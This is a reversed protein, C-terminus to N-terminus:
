PKRFPVKGREELRAYWLPNHHRIFEAPVFGSLMSRLAPAEGPAFAAMYIHVPLAVAMIGACLFHISLAWQILLPWALVHETFVLVLGTLVLGVSCAVAAIAVLKQGANYFGQPPLTPDFGLSRTIRDGFILWLGKRFCWILDQRLSLDFIEHLFPLADQRAFVMLYVAYVGAWVLGMIMHISLVNGPGGLLRNGLEPWWQGIPQVLPNDLLAFGTVLLLLWCAANFWHMVVASPTHRRILPSVSSMTTM